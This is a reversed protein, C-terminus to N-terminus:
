AMVRNGAATSDIEHLSKEVEDPMAAGERRDLPPLGGAQLRDAQHAALNGRQGTPWPIEEFFRWAKLRAELM